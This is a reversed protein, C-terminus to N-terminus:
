SHRNKTSLSSSSYATHISCPAGPMESGQNPQLLSAYLMVPISGLLTYPTQQHSVFLSIATFFEYFTGFVFCKENEYNIDTFKSAYIVNVM